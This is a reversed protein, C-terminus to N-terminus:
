VLMYFVDKVVGCSKGLEDVVILGCLWCDWFEDFDDFDDNFEVDVVFVLGCLEEVGQCDKVEDFVVIFCGKVWCFWVVMLDCRFGEIQVMVGVGFRVDLEDM